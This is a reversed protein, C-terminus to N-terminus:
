ARLTGQQFLPRFTLFSPLGFSLPALCSFHELRESHSWSLAGKPIVLLSAFRLRVPDFSRRRLLFLGDLRFVSSHSFPPAKVRHGAPNRVLLWGLLPLVGLM